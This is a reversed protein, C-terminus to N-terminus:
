SLSIIVTPGRYCRPSMPPHLDDNPPFLSGLTTTPRTRMDYGNTTLTRTSHEYKRIPPPPPSVVVM